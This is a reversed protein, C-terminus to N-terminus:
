YARVRGGSLRHLAMEVERVNPRRVKGWQAKSLDIAVHGRQNAGPLPADAPGLLLFSGTWGLWGVREWPVYLLESERRFWVGRRDAVLEPKPTVWWRSLLAIVACVFMAAIALLSVLSEPEARGDMFILGSAAAGGVGLFAIIMVLAWKNDEPLLVLGDSGAAPPAPREADVAAGAHGSPLQRLAALLETADAIPSNRWRVRGRLPVSIRKPGESAPARLEFTLLARGYWAARIVPQGVASWPLRWVQPVFPNRWFWIGRADAAFVRGRQLREGNLLAVDIAVGILTLIGWGVLFPLIRGFGDRIGSGVGMALVLALFYSPRIRYMPYTWIGPVRASAPVRTLLVPVDAPIERRDPQRGFTTM